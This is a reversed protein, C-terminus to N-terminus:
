SCNVIGEAREQRMRLEKFVDIGPDMDVQGPESFLHIYEYEGGPLKM